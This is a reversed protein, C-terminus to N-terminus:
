SRYNRGTGLGKPDSVMFECYKDNCRVSNKEPLMTGVATKPFCGSCANMSEALRGNESMLKTANQILFQRQDYSSRFANDVKTEYDITCRTRYDTFNRGDSMRFPCVNTTMATTSQPATTTTAAAPSNLGPTTNDCSTCSSM